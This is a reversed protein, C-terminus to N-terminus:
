KDAGTSDASVCGKAGLLGYRRGDRVVYSARLTGDPWWMQQEGEERGNLYHTERYLQGNRDWDRAVGVMVGHAYHYIFRVSGDEWRGIEMGEELDGVYHREYAIAGSPWRGIVTRVDGRPSAYTSVLVSLALVASRGIM